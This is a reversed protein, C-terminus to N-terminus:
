SSGNNAEREGDERGMQYAVTDLKLDHLMKKLDENESELHNLYSIIAHLNHKEVNKGQQQVLSSEESPDLMGKLTISQGPNSRNSIRVCFRLPDFMGLTGIDGDGPPYGQGDIAIEVEAMQVYLTRAM